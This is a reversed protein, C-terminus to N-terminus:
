SNLFDNVPMEVELIFGKGQETIINLKGEYISLRSKINRFGIGNNMKSKDFGKGNDKISMKLISNAKISLSINVITAEAYKIINTFQEQAIRYLTIKQEKGILSDNYDIFDTFTELGSTHLLDNCLFSIQEAFDKM